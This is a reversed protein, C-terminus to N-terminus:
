KFDSIEWHSRNKTMTFIRTGRDYQKTGDPGKDYFRIIAEIKDKSLKHLKMLDAGAIPDMGGSWEYTNSFDCKIQEHEDLEYKIFSDYSITKLNDLCPKYDNVKREIFDDTFKHRKLGDKYNKFDLTTMGNEQRVFSPNFDRGLRHNNIMNVYWAYFGEVQNKIDVSDKSKIETQGWTAFPLVFLVMLISRFFNMQGFKITCLTPVYATAPKRLV